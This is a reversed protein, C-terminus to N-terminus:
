VHGFLRIYECIESAARVQGTNLLTESIPTLVTNASLGSDMFKKMLNQPSTFSVHPLVYEKITEYDPVVQMQIMSTLTNM